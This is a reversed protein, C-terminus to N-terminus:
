QTWRSGQPDLPSETNIGRGCICEIGQPVFGEHSTM